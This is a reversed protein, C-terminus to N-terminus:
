IMDYPFLVNKAVLDTYMSKVSFDGSKTVIWIVKDPEDVLSVHSCM